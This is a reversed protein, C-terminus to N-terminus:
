LEKPNALAGTGTGTPQADRHPTIVLHPRTISPDPLPEVAALDGHKLRLEKIPGWGLARSPCAAVCAPDQGEARYDACMDCKTMHGTASSFQPASYPCAWECYRCGVCKDGDVTVIGDPGRTMATTPCVRVCIPDECHNCAMSTYYTFVNPVFTDGDQQWTGGSYEAVRRWSVGIPLNNKDKCAVSCAKCGNCLTQDFYFGLQETM